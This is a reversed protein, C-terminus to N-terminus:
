RPQAEGFEHSEVDVVHVEVLVTHTDGALAAFFAHRGLPTLGAGRYARPQVHASLERRLVFLRQEHASAAVAYRRACHLLAHAVPAAFLTEIRRQMRMHQAVGARAVHELRAALQARHLLQQPMGIDRRRLYVGVEVELVEGLDVVLRVRAGSFLFLAALARGRHHWPRAFGKRDTGGPPAGRTRGLSSQRERQDGVLRTVLAGDFGEAILRARIREREGSGLKPFLTYSAVAQTLAPLHAVAQDEALRRVAEDDYVVFVAIKKLPGGHFAPDVWTETMRTAACASMLLAFLCAVLFYAVAKEVEVM